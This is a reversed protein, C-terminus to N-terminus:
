LCSEGKSAPNVQAAPVILGADMIARILREANKQNRLPSNELFATMTKQPVDVGNGVLAIVWTRWRAECAAQDGELKHNNLRLTFARSEARPKDFPHAGAVHATGRIVVAPSIKAEDDTKFFGVQVDGFGLKRVFEVTALTQRFAIEDPGVARMMSRAIRRKASVAAGRRASSPLSAHPGSLM